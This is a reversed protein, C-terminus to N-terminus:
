KRVPQVLAALYVASMLPARMRMNSWYVAHTITLSMALALPVIWHRKAGGHAIRWVGRLALGLWAAYWLGILLAPVSFGGSNPWFAWFWGVRYIGSVLFMGPQRRLTAHAAAYALADDEVESIAVPPAPDTQERDVFWYEHRTPDGEPGQAGRSAWALHFPEANWARSPGQRAFHAYLQPNNALLLTYGGHSTAWIPRGIQIWNRLTWPVVCVAIGLGLIVGDRIRQRWGPCGVILLVIGCLAAWPAATPRTLIALGFVLGLGVLALWQYSSRETGLRETGLRETGLRGTGPRGACAPNHGTISHGKRQMGDAALDGRRAAQRLSDEGDTANAPRDPLPWVVLWLSWALIALLAALTETMISQSARLLLPDVMVAAAALWAWRNGLARGVSFTLWVTAVGLLLHLLAVGIVSLRGDRVLWSLLWPYLPPRYATPRVPSGDPSEIGLVGSESWNVALRAYSDTDVELSDLSAFIAISRVVAATIIIIWAGHRTLRTSLIM